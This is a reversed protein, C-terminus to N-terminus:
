EMEEGEANVDAGIVNNIKDRMKEIYVNTGVQIIEEFPIEVKRVIDLQAVGTVKNDFLDVIETKADDGEYAIEAGAIVGRNQELMDLAGNIEDRSLYKNKSRGVSIVIQASVGNFDNLGTVIKKISSNSNPDTVTGPLNNLRLNIKRYTSKQALRNRIDMEVIPELKLILNDEQAWLKNLYKEIGSPGLSHFNRQLAVISYGLDGFATDYIMMVSEGIYEDDDLEIPESKGGVKVISPINTDRLRAFKLYWLNTGFSMQQLTAKEEYYSYTRDQESIGDAKVIFRYFDFAQNNLTDKDYAVVRYAEFKITKKMIKGRLLGLKM